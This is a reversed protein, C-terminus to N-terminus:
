AESENQRKILEGWAWGWWCMGFFLVLIIIAVIIDNASM